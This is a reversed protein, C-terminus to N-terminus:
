DVHSRGSDDVAIVGKSQSCCRGRQEFLTSIRMTRLGFLIRKMGQGASAAGLLGVRHAGFLIVLIIGLSNSIQQTVHSLETGIATSVGIGGANMMFGTHFRASKRAFAAILPLTKREQLALLIDDGRSRSVSEPTNRTRFLPHGLINTVVIFCFAM